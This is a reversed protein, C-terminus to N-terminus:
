GERKVDLRMLEEEGVHSLRHSSFEDYDCLGICRWLLLDM